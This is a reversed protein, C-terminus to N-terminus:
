LSSCHEKFLRLSNTNVIKAISRKSGKNGKVKILFWSFLLKRVSIVRDIDVLETVLESEICVQDEIFFITKLQFHIFYSPLLIAILMFISAGWFKPEYFGITNLCMFVGFFLTFALRSLSTWRDTLLHWGKTEMEKFHRVKGYFYSGVSLFILVLFFWLSTEFVLLPLEKSIFLVNLIGMLSISFLILYRM